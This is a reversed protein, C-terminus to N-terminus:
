PHEQHQCRQWIDQRLLCFFIAILLLTFWFVFVVVVVVVFPPLLPKAEVVHLSQNSQMRWLPFQCNNEKHSTVYSNGHINSPKAVPSVSTSTSACSGVSSIRPLIASKTGIRRTSNSNVKFFWVFAVIFFWLFLWRSLRLLSCQSCWVRYRNSGIIGVGNGGISLLLFLPKNENLARLASQRKSDENNNARCRTPM